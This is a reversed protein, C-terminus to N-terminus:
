LIRLTLGLLNISYQKLIIQVYQFITLGLLNRSLIFFPVIEKFAM